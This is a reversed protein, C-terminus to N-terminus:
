EANKRQGAAEEPGAYKTILDLADQVCRVKEADDDDVSIDWEEEVAMVLEVVDLSDAGLDETFRAEPTVAGAEMGLNDIIIDTLIEIRSKMNQTKTQQKEPESM